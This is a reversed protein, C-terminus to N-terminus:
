HVARTVFETIFIIIATAGAARWFWSELVHIRDNLKEIAGPQGNGLLEHVLMDVSTEIAALREPVSKDSM